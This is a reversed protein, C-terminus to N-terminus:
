PTNLSRSTLMQFLQQLTEKPLLLRATSVVDIWWRAETEPDAAAQAITRALFDPQAVQPDGLRWLDVFTWGLFQALTDGDTWASSPRGDSFRRALLQGVQQPTEESIGAHRWQAVMDRIATRPIPTPM